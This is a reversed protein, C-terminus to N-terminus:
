YHFQLTALAQDFDALPRAALDAGTAALRIDYGYNGKVLFVDRTTWTLEDATKDGEDTSIGSISKQEGFQRVVTADVITAPVGGLVAQQPIQVTCRSVDRCVFRMKLDALDQASDVDPHSWLAFTKVQLYTFRGGSRDLMRWQAIPKENDLTV